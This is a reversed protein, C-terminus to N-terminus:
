LCKENFVNFPMLSLRKHGLYGNDKYEQFNMSIVDKILTTGPMKLPGKFFLIIKNNQRSAPILACKCPTTKRLYCRGM